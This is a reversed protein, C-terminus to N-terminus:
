PQSPIEKKTEPPTTKLRSLCGRLRAKLKKGEPTGEIGDIEETCEAVWQPALTTEKKQIDGLDLCAEMYDCAQEVGEQNSAKVFHAAARIGWLVVTGYENNDGAKSMMTRCFQGNLNRWHIEQKRETEAIRKGLETELRDTNTKVLGRIQHRSLRYSLFWSIAVLLAVIVGFIGTQETLESQFFGHRVDLTQVVRGLSDIKSLLFGVTDMPIYNM